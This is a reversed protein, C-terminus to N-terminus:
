PNCIEESCLCPSGDSCPGHANGPDIAYGPLCCPENFRGNTIALDKTEMTWGAPECSDRITYEFQWIQGPEHFTTEYTRKQTKEVASSVSSQMTKGYTDSM